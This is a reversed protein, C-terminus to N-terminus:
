GMNEGYLNQEYPNHRKILTQNSLKILVWYVHIQLYKVTDMMPLIHLINKYIFIHVACFFDGSVELIGNREVPHKM